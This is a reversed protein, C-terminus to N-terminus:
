FPTKTGALESLKAAKAAKLEALKTAHFPEDPEDKIHREKIKIQSDLKNLDQRVTAAQNTGSAASLDPSPSAASGAAAAAAAAAATAPAATAGGPTAATAPATAPAAAPAAALKKNQARLKENEKEVAALKKDRAAQKATPQPPLAGPVSRAAPRSPQADPNWPAWKGGDNGNTGYRPPANRKTPVFPCQKCETASAGNYYGGCPESKWPEQKSCHPCRWSYRNPTRRAVTKFGDGTM